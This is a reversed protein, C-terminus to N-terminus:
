KEVAMSKIKEEYEEIRRKTVSAKYTIWGPAKMCLRCFEWSQFRVLYRRRHYWPYNYDALKYGNRKFQENSEKFHQRTGDGYSWQLDHIMSPVILSPNFKNILKRLSEPFWGPGIGNVLSLIEEDTKEFLLKRGELELNAAIERAQNLEKKPIM